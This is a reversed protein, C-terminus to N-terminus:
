IILFKLSRKIRDRAWTEESLHLTPQFFRVRPGAQSNAGWIIVYNGRCTMFAWNGLLACHSGVIEVFAGLRAVPGVRMGLDIKICVKPLCQFLSRLTLSIQGSHAVIKPTKSTTGMVIMETWFQRWRLFHFDRSFNAEWYFSWWSLPFLHMCPMCPLSCACESAVARHCQKIANPAKQKIEIQIITCPCSHCWQCKM